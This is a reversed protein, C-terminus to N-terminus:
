SGLGGGDRFGRDLLARVTRALEDAGLPKMAFGAIGMKGVEDKYIRDSYGTCLLVPISPRIKMIQQALRDGTMGPMTTDTVVLDFRDPHACFLKLAELPDNRTEMQGYPLAYFNM